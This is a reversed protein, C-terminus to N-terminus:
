EENQSFLPDLDLMQGGAAESVRWGSANDKRSKEFAKKQSKGHGQSEIVAKQTDVGVGGQDEPRSRKAQRKEKRRKKSEQRQFAKNSPDIDPVPSAIEIAAAAIRVPRSGDREGDVPDEAQKKERKLRRAERRKLAKNSNEVNPGSPANDQVKPVVEVLAQSKIANSTAESQAKVKKHKAVEAPEFEGKERKRKSM